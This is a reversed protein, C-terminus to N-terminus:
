ISYMFLHLNLYNGRGMIRLRKLYKGKTVFAESIKLNEPEINYRIDALNVANQVTAKVITARRKRSFKM